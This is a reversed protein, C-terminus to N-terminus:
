HYDLSPHQEFSTTWGSDSATRRPALAIICLRRQARSVVYHTSSLASDDVGNNRDHVVDADVAAAAAADM